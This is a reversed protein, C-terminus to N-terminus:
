EGNYSYTWGTLQREKVEPFRDSDGEFDMVYMVTSPLSAKEQMTYLHLPM